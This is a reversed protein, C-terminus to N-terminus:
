APAGGWALALLLQSRFDPSDLASGFLTHLQGMRYRVTQPHVHLARAAARFGGHEVVAMLDRLQQLTMKPHM